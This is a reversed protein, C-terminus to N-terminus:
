PASRGRLRAPTATASQLRVRARAARACLPKGGVQAMIVTIAAQRMLVSKGGMNPGTIIAARLSDARLALSNPVAAGDLALDLM